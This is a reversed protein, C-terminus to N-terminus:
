TIKDKALQYEQLRNLEALALRRDGTASLARDYVRKVSQPRWPLAADRIWERLCKPLCDFEQLGNSPRRRTRIKTQGLNNGM